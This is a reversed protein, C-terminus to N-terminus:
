GGGSPTLQARLAGKLEAAEWPKTLVARIGLEEIEGAAIEETWGTILMRATTAHRQKVERLLELGNMGPMKHDSVVLDVPREALVELARAGSEATLIEYGERRLSRELASLIRADDDVLLLV